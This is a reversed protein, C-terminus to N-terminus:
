KGTLTENIISGFGKGQNSHIGRLYVGLDKFIKKFKSKSTRVKHLTTSGKFEQILCDEDYYFIQPVPVEWKRSFECGVVENVIKEKEKLPSKVVLKEVDGVKYQLEVIKVEQDCGQSCDKIRNIKSTRGWKNAKKLKEEVVESTLM